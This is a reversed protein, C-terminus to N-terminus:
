ANIKKWAKCAIIFSDVDNRSFVFLALHGMDTLQKLTETQHKRRHATKSRKLEAYATLGGPLICIRDIFRRGPVDGKLCIGGLAEVRKVLYAEITSELAM